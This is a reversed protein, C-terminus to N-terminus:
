PIKVSESALEVSKELNIYEWNQGLSLDSVSRPVDNLQLSTIRAAQRSTLNRLVDMNEGGNFFHWCDFMVGANPQDAEDLLKLATTLNSM